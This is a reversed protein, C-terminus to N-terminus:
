LLEGEKLDSPPLSVKDYVERLALTCQISTLEVVGEPSRHDSLLWRGDPQKTYQEIKHEDQAVLVYEALSEITRYFSFKKGRDYRETSESLVEILATPNLLTDLHGDEFQPEGCVVTVDPYTYAYERRSAIRVRMDNVYAECPRGRLQPGLASAINFTIINHRRSAGTMAFMEGNIYESKYENQREVALYEEPTLYTTKARSTM